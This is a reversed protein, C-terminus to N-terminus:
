HELIHQEPAAHPLGYAELVARDNAEHAKRLEAPMTLPDYLDALSSDPYRARADLIAQATLGIKEHHGAAPAPWPFNNYVIDKSYRYRTELRGCVARMWAMHVSSTLVGFHYLTASPIILVLNSAITEADLFGIPVYPRRESSVSPVLLYNGATPQRDEQFLTPTEACKRTAAKPSALRMNRVQEVRKRLLPSRRIDAPTADKLWLVYRENGKIFEEAGMTPHVFRALAPERSILATREETTLFFNGGDTPQSGKNMEPVDCLPKKRSEVFIDPADTLYANIHRASITQEGDYITPGGTALAPLAPTGARMLAENRALVGASGANAIPPNISTSPSFHSVAKILNCGASSWPWRDPSSCLGARVPNHDIYDVVNAYHNGNRIFRDFYENMWFKGKRQLLKNAQHATFSRIRQMITSLAVDPLPEILMHVHNPMICWRILKYLDGDLSLLTRQVMDAVAEDSLFCQGFGKDEYQTIERMLRIRIEQQEADDDTGNLRSKWQKIVEAPVSDYLRFTISQLEQWECHPLYGRSHWVIKQEANNRAPIVQEGEYITPPNVNAASFGIIVCHVHAKLTAESDWRFTRRAFNIHLGEAFLPKFLLAPQEGQTVSNTSVLAARTHPHRRMVEWARKYWACVYDMKGAGRWQKGFVRLMDQKQEASQLSYGVFPPNGIIYDTEPWPTQLANGLTINAYTKLPLFDIDHGTIRETEALMQAESIWLATTAVTVAFDNVEIGHFQGISVLVPSTGPLFPMDKYRERIVDNELRRLSLYTETLFNGSGCAPDLFTLTSLKEQFRKLDRQRRRGETQLLIHHFESRLADLFLPDTVRHINEVSTYHMGGSRRTEPNLTSEFVAGFITPSIESWDFQASARELILTKAKFNVPPVPTADAGDAFLGGNVYPFAALEPELFPDREAPPTALTKFLAKLARRFDQSNYRALYDHFQGHRFLGADEAYFCFVLRVCFTNLAHLYQERTIQEPPTGLLADYVEGIIEGARVSVETERSIRQADHKVLFELRHREKALDKLLISEPPATPREMDYVLFESFNCTVIWRPHQSLPLGLVYRRAQEFPTLLTGDSQRIRARLDTGLSKQEILVRTAPIYADIFTTALSPSASRPKTTDAKVREEFRIFEEPREVGYVEALLSLWFAQSDGREYGRGQWRQAFTAAQHAYRREDNM